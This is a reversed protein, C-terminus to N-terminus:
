RLRRRLSRPVRLNHLFSLCVLVSVKRGVLLKHIGLQGFDVMCAEQDAGV